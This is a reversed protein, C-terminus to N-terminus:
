DTYEDFLEMYEGKDRYGVLKGEQKGDQFVMITPISMIKYEMAVEPFEDINIKYFNIKGDYEESLQEFMPALMKCPACWSAWFDVVSVKESKLVENEFEDKNIVKVSM